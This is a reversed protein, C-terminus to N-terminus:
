STAEAHNDQQLLFDWFLAMALVDSTHQSTHQLTKTVVWRLSVDPWRSSAGIREWDEVKYLELLAIEENKLRRLERLLTALDHGKSWEADEQSSADEPFPEGLWCRMNPLVLRREQALMHFVHRAVSWEGLIAPPTLLHREEPVQEVAWFFAEASSSLQARFWQSLNEM